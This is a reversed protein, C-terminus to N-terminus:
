NHQHFFEDPLYWFCAGVVFYGACLLFGQLWNSKGDVVMTFVMLISGMIISTNLSGFNMDMDKDLIWGVIVAFPVVFLAIQTSSGIAIGLSLGMKDRMAFRVSAAHECANGIIPLLVIGIFAESIHAHETLGEIAEVLLESSYAVLCTTVGLLIVSMRVTLKPEEEGDEDEEQQFAQTHTVLQFFLYACYCSGVVLATVRSLPLLVSQSLASSGSDVAEYFNTLIAFALCGTFLMGM